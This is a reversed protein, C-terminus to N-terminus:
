LFRLYHLRDKRIWAPDHLDEKLSNEGLYHTKSKGGTKQTERMNKLNLLM